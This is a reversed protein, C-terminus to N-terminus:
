VVRNSSSSGRRHQSNSSITIGAILEKIGTARFGLLWVEM